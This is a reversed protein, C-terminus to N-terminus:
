RMREEYCTPRGFKFGARVVLPKQGDKFFTHRCRNCHLAAGARIVFQSSRCNPCATPQEVPPQPATTTIPPFVRKEEVDFEGRSIGALYQILGFIDGESAALVMAGCVANAIDDHQAVGHDVSDQGGRATRRELNVLQNKLRQLDLLECRQASFLPLAELYIQSRNRESPVYQIGYRAFEQVVWQASYRDGTVSSLGYRRLVAAFEQTVSQPQFPAQRERVMDLVAKQGECHSIALVASDSVGGSSDVFAVYNKGAEAPREFCGTSICAEIVALPLFNEVDTRFQAGYEASAASPDSQYAQAVVRKDLTPNMEESTGRWVLTSSENKGYHAKFQEFLLGRQSYPSSIGLLLSGPITALSPRVAALVESAPNSGSDDQWFALEDCICCVCSYGRVSKYSSTHVQLSVGNSLEISERLRAKVMKRLLPISDFFGGIYRLLIAAQAKDQALLMCIPREGPALYPTYDRFVSLFTAIFASQISKGGRRGIICFGESFQKAPPDQRGTHKRYLELAEGELPLGFLSALLSRWAVWSDAGLGLWRRRFTPAFLAKDNM